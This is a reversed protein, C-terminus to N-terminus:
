ASFLFTRTTLVMVGTKGLSSQGYAGDTVIQPATQGLDASSIVLGDIGGPQWQKAGSTEHIHQAYIDSNGAREDAWTVIAGGAGDSVLQPTLQHNGASCVSVGNDTWKVGGTLRVRQAFIDANSAGNREDTWTIIAGNAVDSIMRHDYQRGATNCIKVSQLWKKNGNHDIRQAYISEPDGGRADIWSVIAGGNGDSVVQPHTEAINEGTVYIGLSHWQPEGDANVRQAYIDPDTDGSRRDELPYNGWRCRRQLNATTIRSQKWHQHASKCPAPHAM